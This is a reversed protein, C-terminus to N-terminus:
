KKVSPADANKPGLNLTTAVLKGDEALKVYGSVTEGIVANDLAAPVGARKIRTSSTIRFTRKGVTITKAAKDLAALKGHFPGEGPKRKTAPKTEPAASKEVPTQTTTQATVLAPTTTLLLGILGLTSFRPKKM